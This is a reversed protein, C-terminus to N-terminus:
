RIRFINFLQVASQLLTFTIQLLLDNFNNLLFYFVTSTHTFIIICQWHLWSQKQNSEVIPIVITCPNQYFAKKECFVHNVFPKRQHDCPMPNLNPRAASFRGRRRCSEQWIRRTQSRLGMSRRTGRDGRNLRWGWTNDLSSCIFHDISNICQSTKWEYSISWEGWCFSAIRYIM